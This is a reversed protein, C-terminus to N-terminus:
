NLHLMCIFAFAFTCRCSAVRGGCGLYGVETHTKILVENGRVSDGDAVDESTSAKRRVLLRGVVCLSKKGVTQGDALQLPLMIEGDAKHKRWWWGSM